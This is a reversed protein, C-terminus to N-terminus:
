ENQKEKVTFSYRGSGIRFHQFGNEFGLYQIGQVERAPQPGEFIAANEAAPVFVDATTNFPVEVNLRFNGNETKWKSSVTGRITETSASAHDLDKLINPQIVFSKFAPAEENLRIGAIYKYFWADISGMMVHNKSQKLTWFECVTTYKEMMSNWGPNTKQNIINWAVDARGMQALAEPMYKTGLVGTTLHNQQKIEIDYVLNELVKNKSVDPVIGLFLPFANAMQSGDNYNGTDPNFYKQNYATRIDGALKEYFRRDSENNLVEAIKSLITADYFYFATPVSEPQGEKWGEVMSGWDGIWGMPVIFDTSISDLFQMYRKMPEYHKALIQKDGYYQYFQWIM